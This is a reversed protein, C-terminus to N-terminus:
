AIRVPTRAQQSIIRSLEAFLETGSQDNVWQDDAEQYDYHYGGSKA